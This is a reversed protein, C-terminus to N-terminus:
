DLRVDTNLADVSFVTPNEAYELKEMTIQFNRLNELLSKGKDRTFVEDRSDLWWLSDYLRGEQEFTYLLNQDTNILQTSHALLGNVEDMFAAIAEPDFDTHLTPAFNIDFELSNEQVASEGGSESLTFLTYSYSCYGQGTCPQYRLLYDKGDLTCLFIANWGMHANAGVDSWLLKGNERIEVRRGQGDYIGATQITEPVGNRNLDVQSQGDPTPTVNCYYDEAATLLVAAVRAAKVAEADTISEPYLHLKTNSSTQAPMTPLATMETVVGGDKTLDVTFVWFGADLFSSLMATMQTSLTVSVRAENSWQATVHGEIGDTFAPYIMNLNGGGVCPYWFAGRTLEVGDVSGNM